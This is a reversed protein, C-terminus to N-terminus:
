DTEPRAAMWEKIQPVAYVDAVLRKLAPFDKIFDLKTRSEILTLFHAVTIDTWTMGKGVLWKGNAEAVKDLKGLYFPITVEKMRKLAEAKAAEDPASM